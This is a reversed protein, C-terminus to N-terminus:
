LLKEKIQELCFQVMRSDPEMWEPHGQVAFANLKPFYVVEPEVLPYTDRLNDMDGDYYRSLRDESWGILEHETGNLCLMQHHYSNMDILEDTKGIRVPHTQGTAHGSTDQYLAGGALGCLFQAGRCVGIIPYGRKLAESALSVEKRDRMSLFEPGSNPIARHKYLSPSIDEGGWLVLIGPADGIDQGLEVYQLDDALVAFPNYEEGEPCPGGSVATYLTLKM